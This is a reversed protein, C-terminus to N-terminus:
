KATALAPSRCCSSPPATPAASSRSSAITCARRARPAPRPQRHHGRAAREQLRVLLAAQASEELASLPTTSSSSRRGTFSCGPSPWGSASATPSCRTGARASTSAPCSRKSASRASRRRSTPTPAGAAVSQPLAPRGQALRAAPLEEAAHDDDAVRDPLALNGSRPRGCARWCACWRRSAPAPIATSTCPRAPARRLSRRGGAAAPRNRRRDRLRPHPCPRRARCGRGAKGRRRLTDRSRPMSPMAPM